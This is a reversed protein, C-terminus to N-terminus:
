DSQSKAIAFSLNLLAYCQTVVFTSCLEFIIDANELKWEKKWVVREELSKLVDLNQRRLYQTFVLIDTHILM